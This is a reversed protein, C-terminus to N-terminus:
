IGKGFQQNQDYIRNCFGPARKVSYKASAADEWQCNQTDVRTWGKWHYRRYETASHGAFPSRSIRRSTAVTEARVEAGASASLELTIGGNVTQFELPRQPVMKGLSATISGNVTHATADGKSSIHVDGNVTHAEIDDLSDAHVSGNVTRGIFHVNPPLRVTFDVSVDNNQVNM